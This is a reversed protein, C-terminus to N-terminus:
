GSNREGQPAFMLGICEDPQWWSPRQIVALGDSMAVIRLDALAPSGDLYPPTGYPEWVVYRVGSDDGRWAAAHDALRTECWCGDRRHQRFLPCRTDGAWSFGDAKARTRRLAEPPSM